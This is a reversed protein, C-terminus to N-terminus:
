ILIYHLFQINLFIGSKQYTDRYIIHYCFKPVIEIKQILNDLKCVVIPEAM